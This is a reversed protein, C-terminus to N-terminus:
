LVTCNKIKITKSFILLNICSDVLKNIEELFKKKSYKIRIISNSVNLYIFYKLINATLQSCEITNKKIKKTFYINKYLKKIIEIFYSINKMDINDDSVIIFIDQEIENILERNYNLWENLIIISENSINIDNNLLSSELILCFSVNKTNTKYDKNHENVFFSM